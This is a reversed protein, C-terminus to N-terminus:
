LNCGVCGSEQVPEYAAGKLLCEMNRADESRWQENMKVGVAKVYVKEPACQRGKWIKRWLRLSFNWSWKCEADLLVLM